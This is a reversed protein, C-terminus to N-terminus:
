AQGKMADFWENLRDQVGPTLKQVAEHDEREAERMINELAQLYAQRALITRASRTSPGTYPLAAVNM